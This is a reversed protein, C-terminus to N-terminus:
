RNGEAYVWGQEWARSGGMRASAACRRGRERRGWRRRRQLGCGPGYRRGPGPPSRRLLRRRCWALLLLIGEKEVGERRGKRGGERGGEFKPQTTVM